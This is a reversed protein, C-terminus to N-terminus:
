RITVRAIPCTPRLSRNFGIARPGVARERVLARCREEQYDLSVKDDTGQEETSVRAYIAARQQETM